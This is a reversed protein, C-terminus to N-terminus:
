RWMAFGYRGGVVTSSSTFAFSDFTIRTERCELKLAM